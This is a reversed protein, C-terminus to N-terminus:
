NESFLLDKGTAMTVTKWINTLVTVIENYQIQISVEGKISLTFCSDYKVLKGGSYVSYQQNLQTSLESVINNDEPAKTVDPYTVTSNQM